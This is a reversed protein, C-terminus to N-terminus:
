WPCSPPVHLGLRTAEATLQLWIFPKVTDVFGKLTEMEKQQQLLYKVLTELNKYDRQLNAIQEEKRALVDFELKTAASYRSVMGLHQLVDNRAHDDVDKRMIKETCGAHAFECDLVQLPCEKLHDELRGREMRSAECNNPCPIPFKECESYHKHIYGPSIFGCYTCSLLQSMCKDVLHCPLLQKKVCEGCKNPCRIIVHECCSDNEADLHSDLEGLRGTWTCGHEQNTCMVKLGLVKRKQKKDVMVTFEKEKCFPCPQRDTLVRSICALCFHQGCCDTLSPECTVHLCLPCEFDKLQSEPDLFEQENVSACLTAM